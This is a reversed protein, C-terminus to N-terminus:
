KEDDLLLSNTFADWNDSLSRVSKHLQSIAGEIKDMRKNAKDDVTKIEKKLDKEMSSMKDKTKKDLSKVKDSLDKKTDTIKGTLDKNSSKIENSLTKELSDISKSLKEDGKEFDSKLTDIEKSFKKDLNSVTTELKGIRKVDKKLANFAKAPAHPDFNKSTSKLPKKTSVSKARRVYKEATSKSVGIKKAVTEPRSAALGKTTKIGKKKLKKATNKGIGKVDTLPRAKKKTM